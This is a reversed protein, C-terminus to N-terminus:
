TKVLDVLEDYVDCMFSDVEKISVRKRERETIAAHIKSPIGNGMITLLMKAESESLVLNIYEETTPIITAKM